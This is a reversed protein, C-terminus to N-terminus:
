GNSSTPVQFFQYRSIDLSALAEVCSSSTKSDIPEGGFFSEDYRSDFYGNKVNGLCANKSTYPEIPSLFRFDKRSSDIKIAHDLSREIKYPKCNLHM